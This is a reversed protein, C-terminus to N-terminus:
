KEYRQIRWEAFCSSDEFNEFHTKCSDCIRFKIHELADKEDIFGEKTYDNKGEDDPLFIARYSVQM